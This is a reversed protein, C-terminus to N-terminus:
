VRFARINFFPKFNDKRVENHNKTSSENMKEMITPNNILSKFDNQNKKGNLYEEFKPTDKLEQDQDDKKKTKKKKKDAKKDVNKEESIDFIDNEKKKSKKEFKNDANTDPIINNNRKKRASNQSSEETIINGFTVESM